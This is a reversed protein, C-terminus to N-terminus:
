RSSPSGGMCVNRRWSSSIRGTCSSQISPLSPFSPSVASLYRRIEGLIFEIESDKPAPSFTLEANGDTTGTIERLRRRM